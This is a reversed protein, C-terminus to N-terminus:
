HASQNKRYKRYYYYCDSEMNPQKHNIPYRKEFLQFGAREAVACSAMNACDITLIMYPLDSVAMCWDFLAMLSETAYGNGQFKEDIFYAFEVENLTDELGMGVIGIFFDNEKLTIAYRKNEFVDTSEKQTQHWEIYGQLRGPVSSNESWDKMFRVVNKQWIIEQLRKEDNRELDRIVLRNTQIRM